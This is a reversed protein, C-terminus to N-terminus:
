YTVFRPPTDVINLIVYTAFGRPGDFAKVGGNTGTLVSFNLIDGANVSIQGTSGSSVFNGPPAQGNITRADVFTTPAATSSKRLVVNYYTTSAAGSSTAQVTYQVRAPKSFTFDGNAYTVNEMFREVEVDWMIKHYNTSGPNTIPQDASIRRFHTPEPGGVYYWGAAIAGQPNTTANYANFYQETTGNDARQIRMGQEPNPFRADREAISAVQPTNNISSAVALGLISGPMTTDVAEVGNPLEAM